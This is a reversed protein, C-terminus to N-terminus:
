FSDREKQTLAAWESRLIKKITQENKGPNHKIVNLREKECFAEYPTFRVVFSQFSDQKEKTLTKWGDILILTLEECSVGPNSNKVSTYYAYPVYDAMTSHNYATLTFKCGFENLYDIKYHNKTTIFGFLKHKHKTKKTKTYLTAVSTSVNSVIV